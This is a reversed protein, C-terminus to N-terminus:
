KGSGGQQQGKPPMPYPFPAYPLQSTNSGATSTNSPSSASSSMASNTSNIYTSQKSSINRSSPQTNAPLNQHAGEAASRNEPVWVREQSQNPRTIHPPLNSSAPPGTIVITPIPLVLEVNPQPVEPFAKSTVSRTKTESPIRSNRNSTSDSSGSPSSTDVPKLCSKLDPTSQEDQGM